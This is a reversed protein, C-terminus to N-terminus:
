SACRTVAMKYRPTAVGFRPGTSVYRVIAPDDLAPPFLKSIIKTYKFGRSVQIDGGREYGAFHANKRVLIRKYANLNSKTILDSNVNKRTLLEWLGRM